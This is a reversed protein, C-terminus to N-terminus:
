DTPTSDPDVTTKYRTGKPVPVGQHVTTGQTGTTRRTPDVAVFATYASLLNHQLAISKIRNKLDPIDQFTSRDALDAIKMRAFVAPLAPHNAHRTKLNIRIGAEIDNHGARGRMVITSTPNDPLTMKGTIVVPRGVYLDPLRKPYMETVKLNGFDIKINSMAPHSVRSFFANMVKKGSTELPLFAVAGRGVKAMRNMLYRNPSSGVGFSFVRSQGLKNHIAGLVERENGIFGDTMFCIYRLRELDHNMNLSANIGTMAMTGGGSSLNDVFDLARQINRDNAPIPQSGLSSARNAFRIIQFTDHPNLNRLAHRMAAKVQTLPKGSMSGSTDVVFIMEVPHRQLTKLYQPPYLTLAFHANRPDQPDRHLVLNTKIQKGAVRYRLVFDKNPIRDNQALTIRHKSPSSKTLKIQHSDSTVEEIKVGADIDLSVAIDHGSRQHPRLYTVTTGNSTQAHKDWAAAKIPDKAFPPNFRPGVVTPLIFEYWGDRYALTNFYKIDVDIRKGPEINAVKQTFINARQQTLLSAVHGAQKAANYIKQAESKERIIGRIRRDGITMIFDTVAANQPLPFVYVAEIKQDYPNHFQQQVNVSAIYTSISAKIDTHKLPLPINQAEGPLKTLMSGCGPTDTSRPARTSQRPKVIVWVEEDPSPLAGSPASQRSPNVDKVSKPSYGSNQGLKDSKGCGTIIFALVTVIALELIIACTRPHSM